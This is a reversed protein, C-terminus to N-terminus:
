LHMSEEKVLQICISQKTGKNTCYTLIVNVSIYSLSTAFVLYLLNM